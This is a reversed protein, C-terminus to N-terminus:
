STALEELAPQSKKTEVYEALKEFEAATALLEIRIKPDSAITAVQAVRIAISHYYDADHEIVTVTVTV